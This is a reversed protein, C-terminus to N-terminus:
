KRSCEEHARGKMQPRLRVHKDSRHQRTGRPLKTAAQRLLSRSEGVIGRLLADLNRLVKGMVLCTVFLLGTVVADGWGFTVMYPCEYRWRTYVDGSKRM